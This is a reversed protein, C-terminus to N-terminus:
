IGGGSQPEGGIGTQADGTSRMSSAESQRGRVRIRNDVDKVGWCGDAIDEIRHKTFRDPVDGELKVCGDTVHVSVESVDLRSDATLRECVDERVREDSRTYGKPGKRDGGRAAYRSLGAAGSPTQAGVVNGYLRSGYEGQRWVEDPDSRGWRREDDYMAARERAIREYHAAEGGRMGGRSYYAREGGREDFEREEDRLWNRSRGHVPEDRYRSAEEAHWQGPSHHLMGGDRPQDPFNMRNPM